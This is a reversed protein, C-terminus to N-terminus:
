LFYNGRQQGVFVCKGRQQGVFECKGRKHAVFVIKEAQAVSKDKGRKTGVCWAGRLGDVSM